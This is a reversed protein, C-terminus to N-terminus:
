MRRKPSYRFNLIRKGPGLRKYGGGRRGVLQEQILRRALARASKEDRCRYMTLMPLGPGAWYYKRMIADIAGYYVTVKNSTRRVM